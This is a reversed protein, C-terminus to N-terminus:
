LIKSWRRFSNCQLSIAVPLSAIHCPQHEIFVDLVKIHEKNLEAIVNKRLSNYIKEPYNIENFKKLFVKKSLFVAKTADGGIGIGIAAPPCAFMIKENVTDIIYKTIENFGAGPSFMKLTTMNECGAGRILISIKLKDGKVFDYYVTPVTDCVKERLLPDNIVSNRFYNKKYSKKVADTIIGTLSSYSNGIRVNTGVDVFVMPIGTDQCLPIENKEAIKSNELLVSILNKNKRNKEIRLLRNFMSIVDPPLCYNASYCLEDITSCIKEISIKRMLMNKTLSTSKTPM